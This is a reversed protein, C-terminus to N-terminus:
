SFITHLSSIRPSRRIEQGKNSGISTYTRFPASVDLVKAKVVVDYGEYENPLMDFFMDAQSGSPFPSFLSNTFQIRVLNGEFIWCVWELLLCGFTWIDYSRNIKAGLIDCEPPKYRPTFATRSNTQTRSLISNLKALGLDAVVLIGKGDRSDYLLINEPKLDGHRGYIDNAPVPLTGPPLANPPPEHIQALASSIGLIQKSTWHAMDQDLVPLPTEGWYEDLDGRALPFLLYYKSDLRWTMLLTVMHDHAFGNFRKLANVESEFQKLEGNNLLKLAFSDNTV